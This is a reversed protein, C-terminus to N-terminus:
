HRVRVSEVPVLVDGAADRRVHDPAWAHGLILEVTVALREGRQEAALAAEFRRWRSPGTLTARRGPAANVGGCARLDGILAELDRYTLTLPATDLVAEELGARVALDGIDHLDFFAHVHIADDVRRWARRLEALTEPGLTSFLLLGGPALIRAAEALAAAPACWPLVLNALILGVSRDAFPLRTADAEVLVFRPMRLHEAAARLMGRSADLALVRAAPFRAGLALAGAGHACGLDLVTAPEVRLLALRELLRARAEDHVVSASAFSAAGREFAARVNRPAPLALEAALDAV